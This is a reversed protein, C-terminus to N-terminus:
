PLVKGCGLAFERLECKSALRHFRLLESKSGCVGAARRALAALDRWDKASMPPSQPVDAGEHSLSDDRVLYRRVFGPANLWSYGPRRDSDSMYYALPVGEPLAVGDFQCVVETTTVADGYAFPGNM